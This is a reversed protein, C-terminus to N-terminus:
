RSSSKPCDAAHPYAARRLAEGLVVDHRSIEGRLDTHGFQAAFASKKTM